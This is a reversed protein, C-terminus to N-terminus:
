FQAHLLRTHVTQIAEGSDLITIVRNQRDFCESGHHIRYQTM